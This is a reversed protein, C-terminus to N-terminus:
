TICHSPQGSPLVRLNSSGMRDLAIALSHDTHLHPMEEQPVGQFLDRLRGGKPVASEVQARDLVGWLGYQDGVVVSDMTQAADEVLANPPFIQGPETMADLQGRLRLLQTRAEATPLHM